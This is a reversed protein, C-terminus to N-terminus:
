RTIEHNLIDMLEQRLILIQRVHYNTVIDQETAAEAAREDLIVAGCEALRSRNDADLCGPRGMRCLVEMQALLARAKGECEQFVELEKKQYQLRMLLKQNAFVKLQRAMTDIQRATDGPNPLIEDGDFMDELFRIVDRDLSEATGRILNSNDYPFVLSNIIIGIALGIATDWIRGLAYGIPHVEPTTCIIVVILCPLAPAYKIRLTNYLTIVLIIGIGASVLSPLPLSILIIGVIAGYIVGVVQAISAELSEKYTPQVATMAGLMAFILKSTTAGLFEVIVMAIVVSAATKLTRLGIHIRMRNKFM